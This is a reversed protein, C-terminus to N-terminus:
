YAQKLTLVFRCRTNPNPWYFTQGNRSRMSPRDWPGCHPRRWRCKKVWSSQAGLFMSLRPAPCRCSWATGVRCPLRRHQRRGWPSSRAVPRARSGCRAEPRVIGAPGSPGDVAIVVDHGESLANAMARLASHPNGNKIPLPTPLLGGSEVYGRVVEGVLGPAIFTRCSRQWGFRHYSIVGLLQTAHWGVWIVPGEPREGEMVIRSSPVSFQYYHGLIRGWAYALAKLM